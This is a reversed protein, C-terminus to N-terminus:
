IEKYPDSNEQVYCMRHILTYTEIEREGRYNVVVFSNATIGYIM